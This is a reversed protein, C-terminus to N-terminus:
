TNKAQALAAVVEAYRASVGRQAAILALAQEEIERRALDDRLLRLGEQALAEGDAIQFGVGTQLALAAESRITAIYPGFLVPKGHALPQLLNQGGGKVVPPLSNGVFAVDALAYVNALEGMTDLILVQVPAEASELQTRRVPTWGTSRVADAVEEAREMQRPAILLCLSPFAERMKGYAFLVEREEEASRTSGAVFIPTDDPFKLARRLALVADPMLPQIAQDFKSNGLVVVRGLALTGGALIRIREADAESQMLMQDLSRLAWRFVMGVRRSRRFSRESIRGNVMVTKTGQRHLAFLLNPWIESELSVFVAPRLLRAVRATVWPLDFPLYFIANV